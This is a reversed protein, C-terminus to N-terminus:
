GALHYATETAAIPDLARHLGRVFSMADVPEGNGFLVDRRLVFTWTLGDVDAKWSEAVAPVLQNDRDLQLLGVFLLKTIGIGEVEQARYPDIATPEGIALSLGCHLWV